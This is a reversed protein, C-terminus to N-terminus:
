DIHYLVNIFSLVLVMHYEGYISLFCKVFYLIREKDLSKVTYPYPTCVEVDDFGDIFFGGCIDSEVPFFQSSEGLTLFMAHIDLIM